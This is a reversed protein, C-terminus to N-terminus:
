PHECWGRIQTEHVVGAPGDFLELCPQGVEELTYEELSDDISAAHQLDHAATFTGKVSGSPGGPSRSVGPRQGKPLHEPM